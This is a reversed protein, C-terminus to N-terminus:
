SSPATTASTSKEAPSEGAQAEGPAELDEVGFWVAAMVQAAISVPSYPDKPNALPKGDFYREMHQKALYPAMGGGELGLLLVNYLDAATPRLSIVRTAIDTIGAGCIKELQELQKFKLAFLHEGEGFPLVVEASLNPRSM